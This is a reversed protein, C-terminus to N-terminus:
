GVGTKYAEESRIKFQITTTEGQPILSKIQEATTM